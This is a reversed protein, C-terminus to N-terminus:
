HPRHYEDFGIKLSEAGKRIVNKLILDWNSLDM